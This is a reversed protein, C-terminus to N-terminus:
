NAREKERGGRRGIGDEGGKGEEMKRKQEGGLESARKRNKDKEVM